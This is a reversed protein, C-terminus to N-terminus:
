RNLPIIMFSFSQEGAQPRYQELPMAGWSNICGLGMHANDLIIHTSGDPCLELSHKQIKGDARQSKVLSLDLSRRSIDLVSANFHEGSGFFLGNGANDTVELFRLDTHCGSEQPRAYGYHYQDAVKQTYLGVKSASNRDTYNEFPGNGYFRINEFEGKMAMELGFRFMMPAKDRVDFMEQTVAICDPHIEYTLKVKALDGVAYVAVATKGNRDFSLLKLDPYQWAALRMHLYAGLDNETVARGFCPMLPAQLMQRGNVVISSLAGTASDFDVDMTYQGYCDQQLQSARLLIQEYAVRHGAELLGNQKKLHFSLNVFLEGDPNCDAYAAADFLKAVVTKGPQCALENYNGSAVPVGNCIIEWNIYYRDLDTFLNENSIEVLGDAIGADKAWISQYQYQVEYAHPHYSRDAAIIGNCNFSNDSPDYENFDGGFAYIYGTKSDASPWRIAQDVFDWIFGGQYSPYKRVLDMYEKLGGMSNGMAHAYECQILPREPNSQAYKECNAPDLYMPCFIDTEKELGAREYQVPRSSDYDKMWKYVNQFNPGFGAENGMSWVIICPHNFDRQMMRQTRELHAQGYAPVKALTEPGYGMGHSEINAENVVYLGYRDCLRYWRPDNPYHSTRVANINLDKMIRIDRIMEEQSVVYGGTSSLEHRDAGKIMVPKGNVKLLGDEICVDRFGVELTAMQATKAGKANVVLTYLYPTEASWPRIGEIRGSAPINQATVGNGYLSMEVNKVGKTTSVEFNYSGDAHASVHIDTIRAKPLASVTVGRAIGCFRWFDQDELYTGSCWRHIELAILNDGPKVYKTIDFSAALKSDESYGVSQGNVWVQVNSTASGIELIIDSGKWDAPLTFHRRYQGVHNQEQPVVPPNSKFHGRWAYGINLYLPDGYGNLEWMGPVPMNGWASDDKDAMYFDADQTGLDCFWQFKWSGDLSMVPSDTDFSAHMPLRNVQNCAPDQWPTTKVSELAQSSLFFGSFLLNLLVCLAKKM